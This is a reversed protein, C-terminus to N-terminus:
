ASRHQTIKIETGKFAPILDGDKLKLIIWEELVDVLEKRCAEVTSANAWVGEFGHIEAFWTGDDLQKYSAKELAKNRHSGVQRKFTWGIRKLGALVQRAKSSRWQNM